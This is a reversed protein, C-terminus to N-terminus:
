KENKSYYKKYDNFIKESIISSFAENGSISFHMKDLFYNPNNNIVKEIDFWQVDDYDTFNNNLKDYIKKLIPKYSEDNIIEPIYLVKCDYQKCINVISIHRQFITELNDESIRSLGDSHFNSYISNLGYQIRYNFFFIRYIIKLLPIKLFYNFKTNFVSSYQSMVNQYDPMIKTEFKNGNHIPTLDNKAHYFILLDPNIKPFWSVIRILSQYTNWAGVGFNIVLFKKDIKENLKKNLLSPWTYDYSPMEQCHTSSGGICVVKYIDPNKEIIDIVSNNETTKKFGELTHEKKKALGSYNPNLSWNTFPHPAFVLNNDLNENNSSINYNYFPKSIDVNIFDNLIKFKGKSFLIIIQPILFAFIILFILPLLIYIM